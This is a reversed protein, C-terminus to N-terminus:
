NGDNTTVRRNWAKTAEARRKWAPTMPSILCKPNKCEIGIMTGNISSILYEGAEGGCFPCERLKQYDNKQM